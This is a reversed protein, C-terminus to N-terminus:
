ILNSIAGIRDIVLRLRSQSAADSPLHGPVAGRFRSSEMLSRFREALHARLPEGCHEVEQLIEPRGDIVAVLDEIDHSMM